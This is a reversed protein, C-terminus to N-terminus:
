EEMRYFRVKNKKAFNETKLENERSVNHGVYIASIQPAEIKANADGLLRWENQYQWKDYKTLFLTISQSIDARITGHSFGEIMSGIFSSLIRTTIDTERDNEAVYIVPFLLDLHNYHTMDYEICYGSGHSAYENWMTEDNKNASLSCIGLLERANYMAKILEYLQPRVEPSDLKEPIGVIWNIFQAVDYGDPLLAQLQPQYDLLFHPRITGNRNMISGIITQIMQFNEKSTYPRLMDIIQLVCERKLNNTELDYFKNFDITATCETPDDLKKAQCLYLYSNELMDFAYDDFPRYKYLSKPGKYVKTKHFENIYRIKEDM